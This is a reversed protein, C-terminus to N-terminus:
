NNNRSRGRRPFLNVQKEKPFTTSDNFIQGCFCGLLPDSTTRHEDMCSYESRGEENKRDKKCIPMKCDVCCFTMTQYRTTGSEKLYKRSIFCNKERANGTTRGQQRQKETVPKTLSGDVQIREWLTQHTLSGAFEAAAHRPEQLVVNQRRRDNLARCILDSVKRVHMGDDAPSPCQRGQIKHLFFRHFDVVCM